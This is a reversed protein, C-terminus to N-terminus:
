KLEKLFEFYKLLIEDNLETPTFIELIGQKKSYLNKLGKQLSDKDTAKFYHFDFENAIREAKRDHRTEFYHKFYDENKAGPLIRFIGGGGNNIVIARFTEPLVGNWFANSDYFFALEGTILTTDKKSFKAAGVATSTSGDIGSTGRNCFVENGPKLPFLQAYRIASSNSIHLLQQDPLSRFIESFAYFDSFPIEQIYDKHGADNKNKIKLWKDRYGSETQDTQPFFKSFFENPQIDFHKNLCFYTNLAKKPDVHWHHQPQYHRLFAKLKKSIVMGGFTLLIDPQLQQFAKKPNEAIELPAIFRDIRSIFDPHHLNSTTESFVLVSPDKAMKELFQQEIADPKNVGVLVLKRKASNWIEVYPKLAQQTTTKANLIPEISVPHTSFETTTEYLPEYFPVNIHVPGQKEIAANLALNIERENHQQAERYKQQLKAEKPVKDLVIESYLNASYLVHDGYVNKQMITQGDGINIREVPRDASIVVLPIDSYFAEAVAPFYNLLASGSTCCIAVPADLKQAMGMAMFAASREDVVSYAEIEPHNAFSITLPANRSGPSIIVKKINKTLCLQLINQAMPIASFKAKKM